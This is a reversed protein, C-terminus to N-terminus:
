SLAIYSKDLTYLVSHLVLLKNKKSFSGYTCYVVAYFLFNIYLLNHSLM